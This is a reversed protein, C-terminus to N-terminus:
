RFQRAYLPNIQWSYTPSVWVIVLRHCGTKILEHSPKTAINELHCNNCLNILSHYMFWTGSFRAPLSFPEPFSTLAFSPEVFNLNKLDQIMSLKFLTLSILVLCHCFLSSLFCALFSAKNPTYVHFM